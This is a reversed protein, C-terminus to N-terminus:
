ERASADLRIFWSGKNRYSPVVAVEDEKPDIVVCHDDPAHAVRRSAPWRSIM